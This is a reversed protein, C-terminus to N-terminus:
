KRFSVCMYRFKSLLRVNTKYGTLTVFDNLKHNDVLRKIDKFSEGDGVLVLQGVGDMEIFYKFAMVLRDIRKRHIFRSVLGISFKEKSLLTEINESNVINIGNLIVNSKVKQLGYHKKALNLTYKSNAIFFDVKNLCFSKVTERFYYKVKNEKRVGKSLGHITYVTNSSM